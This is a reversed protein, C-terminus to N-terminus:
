SLALTKKVIETAPDIFGITKSVQESRSQLVLEKKM